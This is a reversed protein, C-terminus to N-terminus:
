DGDSAPKELRHADLREEVATREATAQRREDKRRGHALRNATAESEAAAIARNKRARRLNVIEGM